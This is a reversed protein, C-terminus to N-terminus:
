RPVASAAAGIIRGGTEQLLVAVREYGALKAAPITTEYVAGQWEGLQALSRVINWEALSRGGNEGAGVQTVHHRDFGVLWLTAHRAEAGGAAVTVRMGDEDIALAVPVAQAAARAAAIAQLVGARDSGVVDTSGDIVMQPTYVTASDLQAAYHRQRRTAEASAYPDKWGLRDWYDVHFGLPLVDDRQALEGLLADAPPCSSCGQSTFLEVLVPREAALAPGAAFVASSLVLCRLVRM